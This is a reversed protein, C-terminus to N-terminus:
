IRLFALSKFFAENDINDPVSSEWKQICFARPAIFLMYIDWGDIVVASRLATKPHGKDFKALM